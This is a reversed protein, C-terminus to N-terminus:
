LGCDELLRLWVESVTPFVPVAHWLRELPVEGVVAMTAAHLLETVDPGAFAVGVLVRRHRDVVLQAWGRYGDAHLAAGAVDIGREVVDVELGDERAQEASRGVLAVAPDTFVVQPVACGDATAAYPSWPAPEATLEGAARAVVADGVM